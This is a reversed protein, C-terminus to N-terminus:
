KVAVCIVVRAGRRGRLETFVLSKWVAVGGGDHRHVRADQGGQLGEAALDAVHFAWISASFVWCSGTIVQLSAIGHFLATLTSVVGTDASSFHNSIVM